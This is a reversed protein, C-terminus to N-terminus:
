FIMLNNSASYDQYLVNQFTIFRKYSCCYLKTFETDYKGAHRHLRRALTRAYWRLKRALMGVHRRAKPVNARQCTPVYNVSARLSILTGVQRALMGVLKEFMGRVFHQPFNGYKMLNQSFEGRYFKWGDFEGRSLGRRGPLTGGLFNRGPINGGM